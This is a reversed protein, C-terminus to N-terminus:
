AADWSLSEYLENYGMHIGYGALIKRVGCKDTM